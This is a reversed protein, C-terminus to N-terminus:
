KKSEIQRDYNKIVKCIGITLSILYFVIMLTQVEESYTFFCVDEHQLIAWTGYYVRRKDIDYFDSNLYSKNIM